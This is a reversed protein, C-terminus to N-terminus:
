GRSLMAGYVREGREYAPVFVNGALHGYILFLRRRPLAYGRSALAYRMSGLQSRLADVYRYLFSLLTVLVDPVRLARLGKFLLSPQTTAALLIVAYTSLWATSVVGYATVWGGSAYAGALGGVSLSGGSQALPAFLAITGAFPLVLASRALIRGVPLRAILTVAVLLMAVLGFAVARLPSTLVVSVVIMLTALVKARPDLAHVPSCLYTLSEFSPAHSHEHDAARTHHHAHRHPPTAAHSHEHHHIGPPAGEPTAAHEDDAGSM